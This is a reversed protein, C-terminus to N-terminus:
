AHCDSDRLPVTVYVLFHCIYFFSRRASSLPFACAPTMCRQLCGCVSCWESHYSNADADYQWSAMASWMVAYDPRTTGPPLTAPDPPIICNEYYCRYVNLTIPRDYFDEPTDEGHGRGSVPLVYYITDRVM